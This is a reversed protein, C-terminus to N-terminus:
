TRQGEQLFSVTQHAVVEAEAAASENAKQHDGNGYSRNYDYAQHHQPLPLISGDAMPNYLHSPGPSADWSVWLCLLALCKSINTLTMVIFVQYDTIGQWLWTGHLFVLCVLFLDLIMNDRVFVQIFCTAVAAFIAMLLMAHTHQDLMPRLSIHYKFLFGVLGLFVKVAGETIEVRKFNRQIYTNKKRTRSIHKLSYKVSWWLGFLLFFSGTIVHGMFEGM